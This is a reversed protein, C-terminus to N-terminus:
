ISIHDNWLRHVKGGHVKGFLLPPPFADACEVTDRRARVCLACLPEGYFEESIQLIFEVSLISGDSGIAEVVDKNCDSCPKTPYEYKSISPSLGSDQSSLTPSLESM